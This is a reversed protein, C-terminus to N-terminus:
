CDCLVVPILRLMQNNQITYSSAFAVATRPSARCLSGHMTIQASAHAACLTSLKLGMSGENQAHAARSHRVTGPAATSVNSSAYCVCLMCCAVRLMCCTAAHLCCKHLAVDTEHCAQTRDDEHKCRTTEHNAVRSGAGALRHFFLRRHSLCDGFPSLKIVSRRDLRGILAGFVVPVWAIPGNGRGRGRSVAETPRRLEVRSALCPTPDPRNQEARGTEISARPKGPEM